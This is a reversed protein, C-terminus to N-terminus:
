FGKIDCCFVLTELIKSQVKKKENLFEIQEARFFKDLTHSVDQIACKLNKQIAARNNTAIRIVRAFSLTSRDSLKLSNKVDHVNEVSLLPEKSRDSLKTNLNVKLPKGQSQSSSLPEM